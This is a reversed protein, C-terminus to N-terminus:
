NSAAPKYPGLKADAAKAFSGDVISDPDVAKPILGQSSYFKYDDRLSDANVAGTPNAGQPVMNSLIERDKMKTKKILMDIVYDGAKGSLRGDKLADNYVRAAKVYANMFRQGLDRNKILSPGYLIVALQQDPYIEDGSKFKVADGARVPESANPETIFAADIAKNKFAVGLQPFSMYVRSVDDFKLGGKILAANLLADGSGGPSSNGIKLGKLDAYTKVRGSDILDKRVLLLMYGYGPPMSGKDAVIKLDLGRAVANYLGASAGGGGVDIQGTALPAVMDTASKFFVYEPAIGEAAFYGKDEAIYAVVDSSSNTLGIKVKAPDAAQAATAALALAAVAAFLTSGFKGNM